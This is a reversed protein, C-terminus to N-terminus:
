RFRRQTALRRNTLQEIRHQPDGDVRIETFQVVEAVPTPKTEAWVYRYAVSGRRLGTTDLWNPWGPDQHAVVIRCRGDATAVQEKNLSTQRQGFMPSEYWLLDYLAFSWYKAEPTELDIVLAEDPALEFQIGGYAINDASGPVSRPSTAENLPSGLRLSQIWNPWFTFAKETWTIARDLQSFFAPPTPSTPFTDIRDLREIVFWGPEVNWDLFYERISVHDAEGDIRLWDGDHPEASIILEFSGDAEISLEESTIEGHSGYQGLHMEGEPLQVLFPRGGPVKGDLRYTGSPEIKARWYTNDPGPAGWQGTDSNHRYISPVERDSFEVSEQLAGALLGLLHRQGNVVDQETDVGPMDVIGDGLDRLRDCFGHWETM